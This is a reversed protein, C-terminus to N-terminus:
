QKSEEQGDATSRIQKLLPSPTSPDLTTTGPTSPSLAANQPPENIQVQINKLEVEETKATQKRAASSASGIPSNDNSGSSRRRGRNDGTSRRQNREEPSSSIKKVRVAEEQAVNAEDATPSLQPSEQKPLTMNKDPAKTSM